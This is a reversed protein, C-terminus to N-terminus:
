YWLVGTSGGVVLALGAVVLTLGPALEAILCAADVVRKVVKM